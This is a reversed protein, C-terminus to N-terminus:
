DIVVGVEGKVRALVEDKGKSVIVIKSAFEILRRFMCADIRSAESLRGSMIRVTHVDHENSVLAIWGAM